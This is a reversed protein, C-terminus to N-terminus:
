AMGEPSSQGSDQLLPTVRVRGTLLDDMLGSKLLRLKALEAEQNRIDAESAMLIGVARDQEARPPVAIQLKKFYSLGITKVTSGLAIAEFVPKM